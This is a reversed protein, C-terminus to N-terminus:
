YDYLNKSTNWEWPRVIIWDQSYSWSITRLSQERFTRDILRILFNLYTKFLASFKAISSTLRHGQFKGTDTLACGDTLFCTLRKSPVYVTVGMENKCFDVAVARNLGRYM